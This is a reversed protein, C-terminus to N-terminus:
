RSERARRELYESLTPIAPKSRDSTRRDSQPRPEVVARVELRGISIQLPAPQVIPEAATKSDDEYRIFNAPVPQNRRTMEDPTRQSREESRDVSPERRVSNISELRTTTEPASGSASSAALSSNPPKAETWEMPPSQQSPYSHREDETLEPRSMFSSDIGRPQHAASTDPEILPRSYPDPPSWNESLKPLAPKLPQSFAPTTTSEPAQRDPVIQPPSQITRVPAPLSEGWSPIRPVMVSPLKPIQPFSQSHSHEYATPRVRFNQDAPATRSQSARSVPEELSHELIPIDDTASTQETTVRLDRYAFWPRLGPSEGPGVLPPASAVPAQERQLITQLHGM